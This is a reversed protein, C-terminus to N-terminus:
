MPSAVPNLDIQEFRRRRGTAHAPRPAPDGHRELWPTLYRAVLKSPPQWLAESSTRGEGAGGSLHHRLYTSHTAIVLKGELVPRFPEPTVDVGLAQAIHGAAADAQQAALGGQKVAFTTCDGAAYVDALGRVRAFQDM